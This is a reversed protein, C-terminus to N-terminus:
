ANGAVAGIPDDEVLDVVDEVFKLAAKRDFVGACIPRDNDDLYVIAIQGCGCSCKTAQVSTALPLDDRM